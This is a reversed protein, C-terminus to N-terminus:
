ADGVSSYACKMVSNILFLICDDNPVLGAQWKEVRRLVYKVHFPFTSLPFTVTYLTALM